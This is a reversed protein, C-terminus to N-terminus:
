LISVSHRTLIRSLSIPKLIVHRSRMLASGWFWNDSLLGLPGKRTLNAGFVSSTQSLRDFYRDREFHLLVRVSRESEINWTTQWPSSIEGMRLGPRGDGWVLQYCNEASYPDQVLTPEQARFVGENREGFFEIRDFDDFDGDEQGDVVIPIEHGKNYIHLDWPSIDEIRVGVTRLYEGTLRVVGDQRVYVRWRNVDWSPFDEDLADRAPVERVDPVRTPLASASLQGLMSRLLGTEAPTDPLRLPDASSSPRLIQIRARKLIRAEGTATNVQVPNVHLGLLRHGRYVGSEVISVVHRPWLESKKATNLQRERLSYRHDPEDAAWVTDKNSGSPRLDIIYDEPAALCSGMQVSEYEPALLTVAAEGPLADFLEAARPLLIVGPEHVPSLTGMRVETVAGLEPDRLVEVEPAEWTLLIRDPLVLQM